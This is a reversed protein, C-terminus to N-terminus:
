CFRIIHYGFGTGHDFISIPSINNIEKWGCNPDEDYDQSCKHFSNATIDSFYTHFEVPIHVFGWSRPCLHSFIDARNTYRATPFDLSVVHNVFEQNGVRPSHYTYLEIKFGKSKVKSAIDVIHITALAGGLSQGTIVVKYGEYDRSDLIIMLYKNIEQATSQYMYLFGEHVLVGEPSNPLRTKKFNLDMVWNQLNQSGRHSIIIEKTSPEIGITAKTGILHNYFTNIIKYDYCGKECRFFLPKDFTCYVAVAHYYHRKVEVALPARVRTPSVLKIPPYLVESNVIKDIISNPIDPFGNFLSVPNLNDNFYSIKNLETVGNDAIINSSINCVLASFIILSIKM